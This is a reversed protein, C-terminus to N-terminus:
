LEIKVHSDDQDAVMEMGGRKERPVLNVIEEFSEGSPERIVKGTKQELVVKVWVQGRPVNKVTFRGKRIEVQVPAAVNNGQEKARIQILANALNDPLTKGQLTVEGSWSVTPGNASNEEGCGTLLLCGWLVLVVKKM